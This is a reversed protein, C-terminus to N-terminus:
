RKFPYDTQIKRKGYKKEMLEQHLEWNLISENTQEKEDPILSYIKSIKKMLKTTVYNFRECEDKFFNVERGEYRIIHKLYKDRVKQKGESAEKGKGILKAFPGFMNYSVEEATFIYKDFNEKKAHTLNIYVLELVRAIKEQNSTGNIDEGAHELLADVSDMEEKLQSVLYEFSFNGIEKLEIYVPDNIMFDYFQERTISKQTMRSAIETPRVINEVVQIFYSYRMFKNLVPVGFNLNSSSYAQYDATNGMLEYPTKHRSYRHMLEHSMISITSIEDKKLFKVLDSPEWDKPTVFNLYLDISKDNNNVRMMIGEDFEVNNGMGVSALETPGNYGKLENVVVTIDLTDFIVNAVELGVNKITFNTTESRPKIEKIKEIVIEFLKRGSDLIKEPVGVAEQLLKKTLLNLQRESILYQKM